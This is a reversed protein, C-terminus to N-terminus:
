YTDKQSQSRESLTIDEFNMWATGYTLIERKKKKLAPYDKMTHGLKTLLLKVQFGLLM